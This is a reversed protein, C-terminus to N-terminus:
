VYNRLFSSLLYKKRNSFFSYRNHAFSYEVKNFKCWSSGMVHCAFTPVIDFAFLKVSLVSMWHLSACILLRLFGYNHSLSVYYLRPNRYIPLGLQHTICESIYNYLILHNIILWVICRNLLISIELKSHHLEDELHPYYSSQTEDCYSYDMEFFYDIINTQLWSWTSPSHPLLLDSKLLNIVLPFLWCFLNVELYSIGLEGGWWVRSSTVGSFLVLIYSSSM